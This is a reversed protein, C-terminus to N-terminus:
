LYYAKQHRDLVSYDANRHECRVYECEEGHVNKYEEIQSLLEEVNYDRREEYPSLAM